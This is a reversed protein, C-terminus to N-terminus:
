KVLKFRFLGGKGDDFIFYSLDTSQGIEPFILRTGKWHHAISQSCYKTLKTKEKEFMGEKSKLLWSEKQEEIELISNSEKHVFIGTLDYQEIEKKALKTKQNIIQSLKSISTQWNVGGKNKGLRLIVTQHDPDVYLRQGNYGSGFYDTDSLYSDAIDTIKWWGKKYGYWEGELFTRDKVTNVWGESLIQNGKWDKGNHSFLYGFKLLDEASLAMGGFVREDGGEQDFTLVVEQCFGLPAIFEEELLDSITKGMAQEICLGLIQTDISKYVFETQPETKCDTEQIARELDYTYYFEGTSFLQGYEDRNLGSTMNLLNALTINSKVENEEFYPLFDKVKQNVSKIKKQQIAIDVLSTTLVKSLSFVIKPSENQYDNFYQEYLISDNRMVIFAYTNTEEFLEQLSFDEEFDKGIIWDKAAPFNFSNSGVVFPSECQDASAPITKSHFINYDKPSPATYVFARFPYHCGAMLFCAVLVMLFHVSKNRDNLLFIDTNRM